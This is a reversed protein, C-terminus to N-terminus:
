ESASAFFRVHRFELSEDLDPCTIAEATAIEQLAPHRYDRIRSDALLIHDAQAVFADVLPWNSRDYLVDAALLVDVRGPLAFFDELLEVQLANDRANCATVSLADRDIDCAIVRHAGARAAALAVVGAGTGVDLVTRGRVLAPQDLIRRALAVGASWAFAWYPPADMVRAAVEPPLGQRPFDPNLLWMPLEPLGQVCQWRLCAGPILGALAESLQDRDHLHMRQKKQDSM